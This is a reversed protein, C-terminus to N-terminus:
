DVLHTVASGWCEGADQAGQVEALKLLTDEDLDNEFVINLEGLEVDEEDRYLMTDLRTGNWGPSIDDSEVGQRAFAHGVICCPRYDQFYLCDAENGPRDKGLERIDEVLRSLVVTKM